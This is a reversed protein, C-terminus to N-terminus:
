EETPTPDAKELVLQVTGREDTLILHRAGIQYRSASTLGNLFDFEQQMLNAETCARRTSFLSSISVTEVEDQTGYSYEGGFTNCGGYGSVTWDSGFTLTLAEAGAVPAGNLSQLTWSSGKLEGIKGYVLTITDADSSVSVTSGDASTTTKIGTLTLTDATLSYATVSQLATLYAMEQANFEDEICARFTSMVPSITFVGNKATYNAGYSNCGSDGSLEDWYLTLTILKGPLPAEGNLSLLEWRSDTLKPMPAFRLTGGDSLTLVLQGAEDIAYSATRGLADLFASEQTMAPGDCAMLTSVLMGFTLRDGAATYDGGYGNCGGSGGARGDYGFTLTSVVGEAAPTDNIAVLQWESGALGDDTGEARAQGAPLAWALALLIALPIWKM